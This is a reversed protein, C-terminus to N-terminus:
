LEICISININFRIIKAIEDTFIYYFQLVRNHFVVKKYKKKVNKTAGMFHSTMYEIDM